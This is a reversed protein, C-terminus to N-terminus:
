RMMFEPSGIILPARLRPPAVEIAETTRSSFMGGLTMALQAADPVAMMEGTERPVVMAAPRMRGSEPAPEDGGAFDSVPRGIPLRGVGIATAFSLRLMMADPNLWTEQTNSYGDPTQCGYLPMGLAAMTGALPGVNLVPTGIARV